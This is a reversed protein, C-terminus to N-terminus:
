SAGVISLHLIKGFVQLAGGVRALSGLWCKNFPILLAFISWGLLWLLIDGQLGFKLFDKLMAGDGGGKISNSDAQM